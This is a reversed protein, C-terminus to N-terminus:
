RGSWVPKRKEGFAAVGERFDASLYCLQVLDDAPAVAPRQRLLAQRTAVITLPALGAITRAM